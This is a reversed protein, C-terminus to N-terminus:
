TSFSRSSKVLLTRRTRWAHHALLAKIRPSTNVSSSRPFSSAYRRPGGSATKKSSRVLTADNFGRRLSTFHQGSSIKGAYPSPRGCGSSRVSGGRRRGEITEEAIQTRRPCSISASTATSNRVSGTCSFTYNRRNIHHHRISFRPADTFAVFRQWIRQYLKFLDEDLDNASTKRRRLIRM